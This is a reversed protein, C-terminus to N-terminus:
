CSSKTAWFLSSNSGDALPHRQHRTGMPFARLPRRPLLSAYHGQAMFCPETPLGQAAAVSSTGFGAWCWGEGERALLNCQRLHTSLTSFSPHLAQYVGPSGSRRCRGADKCQHLGLCKKKRRGRRKQAAKVTREGPSKERQSGKTQEKNRTRSLAQLGKWGVTANTLPFSVM